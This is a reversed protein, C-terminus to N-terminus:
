FCYLLLLSTGTNCTPDGWGSQCGDFCRGTDRDCEMPVKCHLSCNNICDDGFVGRPCGQLFYNLINPHFRLKFDDLM